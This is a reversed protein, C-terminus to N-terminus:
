FTEGVRIINEYTYYSIWSDTVNNGCEETGNIKYSWGNIKGSSDRTISIYQEEKEYNPDYIYRVTILKTLQWQM